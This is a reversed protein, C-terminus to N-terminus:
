QRSIAVIARGPMLLQGEENRVELAFEIMRRHGDDSVHVVQAALELVDGELALGRNEVSLDLLLGDPGIWDTVVQTVMAAQLPGHIVLGDYGERAAHDRDYHIRHPNYYAASFLFLQPATVVVRRSPLRRGEALDSSGLEGQAATMQDVRIRYVVHRSPVSTGDGGDFFVASALSTSWSV